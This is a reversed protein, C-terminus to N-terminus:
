NLALYIKKINDIKLSASGIVFGDVNDLTKLDNITNQNVGGGYLVKININYKRNVFDKIHKIVKKIEDVNLITNEGINWIPEYAIIINDKVKDFIYSIQKEIISIKNKYITDKYFEGVCLVPTINYKLLEKVKELIVEDTDRKSVRREGHGVLTYKVNLAKLAEAGVGGTADYESVCQSGLTYEGNTFLALYPTQPMVVVDYKRLHNEYHKIEDITLNMKHNLIILM